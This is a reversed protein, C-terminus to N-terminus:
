MIPQCGCGCDNFFGEYGDECIFTVAACQNPDKSVYQLDPDGYNCHSKGNSGERSANGGGSTGCIGNCEAGGNNPDCDDKPDDVCSYGEPCALQAFGGCAQGTASEEAAAIGFPLVLWTAAFMAAFRFSHASM